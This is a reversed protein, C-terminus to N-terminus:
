PCDIDALVSLVEGRLASAYGESTVDVSDSRMRSLNGIGNLCESDDIVREAILPLLGRKRRREITPYHKDLLEFM